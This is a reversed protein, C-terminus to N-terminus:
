EVGTEDRNEREHGYRRCDEDCDKGREAEIETHLRPKRRAHLGSDRAGVVDGYLVVVLMLLRYRAIHEFDGIGDLVIGRKVTGVFVGIFMEESLESIERAIVIEFRKIQEIRLAM